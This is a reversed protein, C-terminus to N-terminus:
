LPLPNTAMKDLLQGIKAKQVQDNMLVNLETVAQIEKSKKPTITKGSHGGKKLYAAIKNELKFTLDQLKKNFYQGPAPLNELKELLEWIETYSSGFSGSPKGGVAEFEALSIDNM